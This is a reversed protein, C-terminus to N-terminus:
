SLVNVRSVDGSTLTKYVRGFESVLTGTAGPRRSTVCRDQVLLFTGSDMSLFMQFLNSM